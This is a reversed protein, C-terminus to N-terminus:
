IQYISGGISNFAAGTVSSLCNEQSNVRLFGLLAFILAEKFKITNEDPIIILFKEDLKSKITEILFSNFAGGGTILIKQIPKINQHLTVSKAIQTAINEVVTRLLNEISDDPIKSIINEMVWEKGLSKPFNEKYYTLKSLYQYFEANIEGKQANYGNDDYELNLKQALHNLVMNAECIDYAIIKNDKKFSINAIGGINICFDNESFFYQDGIPVLPAGQGGLAVDLSRFDSVVTKNAQAAISAGHGLQFTFGNQPQHFLTHGHSAIYDYESIKNEQCFQVILEGFFRGLARDIYILREGICSEAEHILKRHKEDYPYTQCKIIDYEFKEGNQSISCYALDVGDLSTGSMLGIIRSNM